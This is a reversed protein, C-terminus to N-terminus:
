VNKVILVPPQPQPSAPLFSGLVGWTYTEGTPNIGWYVKGDSILFSGLDAQPVSDSLYIKMM